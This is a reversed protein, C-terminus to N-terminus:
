LAGEPDDQATYSPDLVLVLRTPTDDAALRVQVSSLELERGDIELHVPLAPQSHLGKARNTIDGFTIM